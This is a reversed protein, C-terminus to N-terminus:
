GAAPEPESTTFKKMVWGFEGSPLKVFLWGPDAGHLEMTTGQSLQVIVPHNVGPGSRANLTPATVKVQEAVPSASKYESPDVGAPSEVVIYGSPAKNYYVNGYYYYEFDEARFAVYGPPLHAIVAGLPPKTVAYGNPLKKYYMGRHYYYEM